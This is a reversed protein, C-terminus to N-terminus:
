PSRQWPRALAPAASSNRHFCFLSANRVYVSPVHSLSPVSEDGGTCGLASLLHPQQNLQWTPLYFDRVYLRRADIRATDTAETHTLPM